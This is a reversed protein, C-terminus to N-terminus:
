SRVKTRALYRRGLLARGRSLRAKLTGEPIGLVGATESVSKEQFYFLVMPDRYRPPLTTVLQRVVEDRERHELASLAGPDLSASRLLELKVTVPGRSRVWSRYSNLSLSILWTSFRAEGRFTDLSKFAKVFAEQAMDEAMSRDRCFRWALNILPGQWRLVIGTFAETDGALVRRVDEIDATDRADADGAQDANWAVRAHSTVTQFDSAWVSGATANKTAGCYGLYRL